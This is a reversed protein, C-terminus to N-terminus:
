KRIVGIGSFYVEYAKRDKWHTFDKFADNENIDHSVLLGGKKISDWVKSYEFFMNQYSHESDHVFMDVDGVKALIPDLLDKSKGIYLTWRQRLNTPVVFGSEEDKPLCHEEPMTHNPYDISYLHGSKNDDLAQLMYASSIGASVGTEVIVNPKFQRVLVYLLEPAYMQGYHMGKLKKRIHAHLAVSYRIADLYQSVNSPKEKLKKILFSCQQEVAYNLGGFVYDWLAFPNHYLVRIGEKISSSSIRLPPREVKGV